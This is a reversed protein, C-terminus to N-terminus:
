TYVLRIIARFSWSQAVFSDKYDLGPREGIGSDKLERRNEAPIASIARHTTSSNLERNSVRSKGEFSREPRFQCVTWLAGTCIRTKVDTVM